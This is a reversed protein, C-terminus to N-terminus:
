DSSACHKLKKRKKNEAESKEIDSSAKCNSNLRKRSPHRAENKETNLIKLSWQTNSASATEDLKLSKRRCKESSSPSSYENGSINEDNDTKPLTSHNESSDSLNLGKTKKRKRPEKKIPIKEKADDSSTDDFNLKRASKIHRLVLFPNESSTQPTVITSTSLDIPLDDESSASEYRINSYSRSCATSQRCEKTNWIGHNSTTPLEWSSSSGRLISNPAIFAEASKRISGKPTTCTNSKQCYKTYQINNKSSSPFECSRSFIGRLTKSNESNEATPSCLANSNSPDHSSQTNGLNIYKSSVPSSIMSDIGIDSSECSKLPSTETSIPNSGFNPYRSMLNHQPSMPAIENKKSSSELTLVRNYSHEHYFSNSTTIRFSPRKNEKSPSCKSADALHSSMGPKESVNEVSSPRKSSDANLCMESLKKITKKDNVEMQYKKDDRYDLLNSVKENCDYFSPISNLHERFSPTESANEM